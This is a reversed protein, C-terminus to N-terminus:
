LFYFDGHVLPISWGVLVFSAGVDAFEYVKSFGRALAAFLDRGIDTRLICYALTFQMALASFILRISVKKKNNSFLFAIGLITAIGVFSMYRSDQLLYAFM